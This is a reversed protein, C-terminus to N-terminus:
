GRPSEIHRDIKQHTRSLALLSGRGSPPHLMILKRIHASPHPWTGVCSLSCVAARHISGTSSGALCPQRNLKDLAVVVLGEWSVTAEHRRRPYWSDGRTPLRETRSRAKGCYSRPPLTGLTLVNGQDCLRKGEHRHRGRMGGCHSLVRPLATRTLRDGLFGVSAALLASSPGPLSTCRETPVPADAREADVPGGPLRLARFCAQETHLPPFAACGERDSGRKASM